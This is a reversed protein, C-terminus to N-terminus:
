TGKTNHPNGEEDWYFDLTEVPINPPELLLRSGGCVPAYWFSYKGPYGRRLFLGLAKSRELGSVHTIPEGKERGCGRYPNRQPPVGDHVVINGIATRPDESM